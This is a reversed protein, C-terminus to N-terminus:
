TIEFTRRLQSLGVHAMKAAAHRLSILHIGLHRPPM